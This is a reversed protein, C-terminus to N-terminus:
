KMWIHSEVETIHDDEIVTSVTLVQCDRQGPVQLPAKLNSHVKIRTTRSSLEYVYEIRVPVIMSRDLKQGFIMLEGRDVAQLYRHVLSDPDEIKPADPNVLHRPMAVAAQAAESYACLLLVAFVTKMLSGPLSRLPRPTKHGACPVRANM